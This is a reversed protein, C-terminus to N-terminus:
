RAIVSPLNSLHRWFGYSPPPQLLPPAATPTQQTSALGQVGPLPLVSQLSASSSLSPIPTSLTAVAQRSGVISQYAPQTPPHTARSSAQPASPTTPPRPTPPLHPAPPIQHSEDAQLASSLVSITLAHLKLLLTLMYTSHQLDAHSPICGHECCTM